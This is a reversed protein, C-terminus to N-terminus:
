ESGLKIIDEQGEATYFLIVKQERSPIELNLFDIESMSPFKHALFCISKLLLLQIPGFQM